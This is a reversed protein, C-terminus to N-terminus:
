PFTNLVVVESLLNAIEVLASSSNMNCKLMEVLNMCLFFERVYAGHIIFLFSIFLSYNSQYLDSQLLYTSFFLLSSFSIYRMIENVYVKYVLLVFSDIEVDMWRDEEQLLIYM